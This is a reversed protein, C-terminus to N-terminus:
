DQSVRVTKEGDDTTPFDVADDDVGRKGVVLEAHEVLDATLV